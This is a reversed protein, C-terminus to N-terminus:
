THLAGPCSWLSIRAGPQLSWTPTVKRIYNGANGDAAICLAAWHPAWGFLGRIATRRYRPHGASDSFFVLRSCQSSLHIDTWSSVNGSAYNVVEAAAKTASHIVTKYGILGHAVSSTLGSELEHRHRLLCLRSRGRSNDLTSSSLTGLLSSKGSNTSGTLSVRLQEPQFTNGKGNAAENSENIGRPNTSSPQLSPEAQCEGLGWNPKELVPKVLAEAIWLKGKRLQEPQKPNDKSPEIWECSGVVVLRLVHVACGLSAAMVRLTALSEDLEDQTLGVCTGEDSVGIEYLAGHSEELGPLLGGRQMRPDLRVM